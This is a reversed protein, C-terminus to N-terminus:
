LAYTMPTELVLTHEPTNPLTTNPFADDDRDPWRRNLSAVKHFQVGVGPRMSKLFGIQQPIEGQAGRRLADCVPPMDDRKTLRRRREIRGATSRLERDGVTHEGENPRDGSCLPRSTHTGMAAGLRGM